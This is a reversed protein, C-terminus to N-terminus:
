PTTESGPVVAAPDVPTPVPVAPPQLTPDTVGFRALQAVRDQYHQEAAAAMRDANAALEANGNRSAIERLHQAQSLRHDRNRQEILLQGQHRAAQNVAQAGGIPTSGLAGGIPAHGLQSSKLANTKGLSSRGLNNGTRSLNQSARNLGSSASGAGSTGGVKSMARALGGSAGKGKGEALAISGATLAVMLALLSARWQKQMTEMRSNRPDAFGSKARNINISRFHVVLGHRNAQFV